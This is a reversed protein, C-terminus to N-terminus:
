KNPWYLKRLRELELPKANLDLWEQLDAESQKSAELWLATTLLDEFHGVACLIDVLEIESVPQRSLANVLANLVEIWNGNKLRAPVASLILKSQFQKVQLGFNALQALKDDDIVENISLTIPMLLPQSVVKEDFLKALWFQLLEERRVLLPAQKQVLLLSEDLAIIQHHQADASLLTQYNESARKIDSSPKSFETNLSSAIPTNAGTDANLHERSSVPRHSAELPKIYQHSATENVEYHAVDNTEGKDSTFSSQLAENVSAYVFDHVERAQQFRVEHKAPHVNVDVQLPDCDFYLVYAPYSDVPILGEFAERIAHNLLKDRMMRGNVYAFQLDNQPRFFGPGAVWGSLKYGSMESNLEICQEVFAKGCLQQVRRLLGDKGNHRPLHRVIKGNHKLKFQVNSRALAVRKLLADIHQFETREARLFKRRAPTNYFLDLVEVTTGQPHATPALEVAMERGESHALWGQEQEQPKSKLSLRAVSSISALAEGRFGLSMIKELDDLTSIKSTAHRSLALALEDKIIGKGNDKVVIAKSGGNEIIVEISTAGADLSNELLEKVISAPREVVEGAAIQNALQMPLVKISM